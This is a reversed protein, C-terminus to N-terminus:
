SVLDAAFSDIEDLEKQLKFELSDHFDAKPSVHHLYPKVCAAAFLARVAHGSPLEAASRIHEPRLASRDSMLIEEMSSVVNDFPGLLEIREALGTNNFETGVYNHLKPVYKLFNLYVDIKWAEDEGALEGEQDSCDDISFFNGSRKPQKSPLVINSSYM